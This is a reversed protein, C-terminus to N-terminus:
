GDDILFFQLARRGRCEGMELAAWQTFVGILNLVVQLVRHLIQDADHACFIFHLLCQLFDRLKLHPCITHADGAVPLVFVPPVCGEIEGAHQDGSFFRMAQM